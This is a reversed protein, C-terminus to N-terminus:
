FVQHRNARKKKLFERYIVELISRQLAIRSSNNEHLSFESNGLSIFPLSLSRFSEENFSVKVKVAKLNTVANNTPTGDIHSIREDDELPRVISEAAVQVRGKLFLAM